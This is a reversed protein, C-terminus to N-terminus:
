AKLRDLHKIARDESLRRIQIPKKLRFATEIDEEMDETVGHDVYVLLGDANEMWANKAKQGLHKEELNQPDLIDPLTYLLHFALPAEKKDLSDIMCACTFTVDPDNESWHRQQPTTLVLCPLKEHKRQLKPTKRGYTHTVLADATIIDSHWGTVTRFEIQINDKKARKIGYKVGNSLGCDTYVRCGQSKAYWAIGADIGLNREAEITDDTVNQQTYLVHSALPAEGKYLADRIALRTYRVHEQTQEFTPAAYPSEILVRRM